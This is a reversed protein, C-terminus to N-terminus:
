SPWPALLQLRPFYTRYRNSDRTLLTWNETAAQAGIFFDPLVGTKNGNQQRYQMFAIAAARGAEKTLHQMSLGLDSLFNDLKAPFYPHASLEAYIVVNIAMPGAARAHQFAPGSWPLWGPDAKLLDILVNTDVLTM